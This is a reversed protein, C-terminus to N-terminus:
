ECTLRANASLNWGEDFYAIPRLPIPLSERDFLVNLEVVICKEKSAVAPLAIFDYKIVALYDVADILSSFRRFSMDQENRVRYDNFLTNYRLSYRFSHSYIARNFFALFHAISISVKVDWYLVIGSRLAERSTASLRFDLEALFQAKDSNAEWRMNKVQLWENSAYAVPLYFGSLLFCIFVFKHISKYVRMIFAM